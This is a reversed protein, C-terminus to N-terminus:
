AFASAPQARGYRPRDHYAVLIGCRRKASAARDPRRDVANRSGALTGVPRGRTNTASSRGGSSPPPPKSCQFLIQTIWTSRIRLPRIPVIATERRWTGSCFPAVVEAGSRAGPRTAFVWALQRSCVRASFGPLVACPLRPAPTSAPRQGRMKSHAANSGSTSATPMASCM